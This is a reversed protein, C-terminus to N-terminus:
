YRSKKSLSRNDMSRAMRKDVEKAAAAGATVGAVLEVESKLLDSGTLSRM